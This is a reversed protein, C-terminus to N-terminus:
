LSTISRSFCVTCGVLYIISTTLHTCENFIPDMLHGLVKADGGLIDCLKDGFVVFFGLIVHLNQLLILQVQDKVMDGLM